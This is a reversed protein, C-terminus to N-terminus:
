GIPQRMETRVKATTEAAQALDVAEPRISTSKGDILGVTAGTNGDVWACVPMTVKTGASTAVIVQCSITTDSGAPKFDKPPVALRSNQESASGRLMAKRSIDPQKIQAYMGSVVLGGNQPGGASTYQGVIAKPNKVLPDRAQVAKEGLESMDDTFKYKQAVLTPPLVLKYRAEPFGDSDTGPDTGAGPDTGSGGTSSASESGKDAKSDNGDGDGSFVTNGLWSLVLLGTVVGTVVLITRGPRRQKPAPPQPAGWTGQGHPGHPGQPGPPPGGFAPAPPIPGTQDPGAGPQGQQPYGYPQGAGYGPPPQQPDPAGYAPPPPAGYGPQGQPPYQQGGYPDHYPPQAPQQAYPDGYPGPGTQGYGGQPDHQPSQPHPPPPTSM